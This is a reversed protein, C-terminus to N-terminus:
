NNNGNDDISLNSNLMQMDNPKVVGTIKPKYNKSKFKFLDNMAQKEKETECWRLKNQVFLPCALTWLLKHRNDNKWDDKKFNIYEYGGCDEIKKKLINGLFSNFLSDKKDAWYKPMVFHKFFNVIEDKRNLPIEVDIFKIERVSVKLNKLEKLLEQYKDPKSYLGFIISPNADIKM